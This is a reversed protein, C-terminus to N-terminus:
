LSRILSKIFDEKKAQPAGVASALFVSLYSLSLSLVLELLELVVVLLELFWPFALSVLSFLPFGLFVVFFRLFCPEQQSRNSGTPGQQSRNSGTPGQQDRSVAALAKKLLATPTGKSPAPPPILLLGRTSAVSSPNQRLM